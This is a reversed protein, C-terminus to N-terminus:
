HTAPVLRNQIIRPDAEVLALLVRAPGHPRRRGQEWNKITSPAVGISLAFMNQSLGTSARIARVDPEDVEVEHVGYGSSDGRVYAEAEELGQMITNFASM